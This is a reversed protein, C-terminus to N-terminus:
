KLNPYVEDLHSPVRHAYNEKLQKLNKRNQNILKFSGGIKVAGKNQSYNEKEATEYFYYFCFLIVIAGCFGLIQVFRM